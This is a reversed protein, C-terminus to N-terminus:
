GIRKISYGDIRCNRTTDGLEQQETEYDNSLKMFREDSLKGM